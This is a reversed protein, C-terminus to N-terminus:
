RRLKPRGSTKKATTNRKAPRRTRPKKKAFVDVVKGNRWVYFPVGERKHEAKARKVAARLALLARKEIPLERLNNPKAM